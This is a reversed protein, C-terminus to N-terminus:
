NLSQFMTKYGMLSLIGAVMYPNRSSATCVFQACLGKDKVTIFCSVDELMKSILLALAEDYTTIIYGTQNFDIFVDV